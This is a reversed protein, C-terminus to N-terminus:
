EKTYYTIYQILSFIVNCLRARLFMSLKKKIEIYGTRGEIKFM